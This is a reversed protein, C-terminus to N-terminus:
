IYVMARSYEKKVLQTASGTASGRGLASPRVCPSGVLLLPRYREVGERARRRQSADDFNWPTGFEDTVTADLAFGPNCGLDPLLKAAAMFQPPSYIEAM